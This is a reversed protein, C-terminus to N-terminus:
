LFYKRWAEPSYCPPLQLSLLDLCISKTKKEPHNKMSSPHEQADKMTFILTQRRQMKSTKFSEQKDERYTRM